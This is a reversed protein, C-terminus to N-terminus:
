RQAGLSSPPNKGHVHMAWTQMAWTQMAWTQMAWTQM